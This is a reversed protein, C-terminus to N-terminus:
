DLIREKFEKQLLPSVDRSPKPEPAANLTCIIAKNGELVSVYIPSAFRGRFAHGISANYKFPPNEQSHFDHTTNSIIRLINSKSEGIEVQQLTGYGLQNGQKAYHISGGAMIYHPTLQNILAHIQMISPNPYVQIPKDQSDDLGNIVKVSGMGRRVRKGFGGFICTLQFLASLQEMGFIDKGKTSIVGSIGLIVKFSQKPQFANQKMFPKHPVLESVSTNLNAEHPIRIIVRSRKGGNDTGGFIEGEREKLTKLPLHGNMARWWFRLAGKISPPRLEPTSGDAGSLFMPTITECEFTIKHM